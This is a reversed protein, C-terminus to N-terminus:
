PKGDQKGNLKSAESEGYRAEFACSSANHWDQQDGFKGECKAYALLMAPSATTKLAAFEYYSASNLNACYSAIDWSGDVGYETQCRDYIKLLVEEAKARNSTFVAYGEKNNKVCLAQILLDEPTNDVCQKNIQLEATARDPLDAMLPTSLLGVLGLSFLTQFIRM